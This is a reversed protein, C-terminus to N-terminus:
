PVNLHFIFLVQEFEGKLAAEKRKMESEWSKLETVYSELTNVNNKLQSQIQIAKQADMVLISTKNRVNHPKGKNFRHSQQILLGANGDM